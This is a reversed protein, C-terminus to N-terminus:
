YRAGTKPKPAAPASANPRLPITNEWYGHLNCHLRVRLTAPNKAVLRVAIVPKDWTPESFEIREVKKNDAYVEVWEIHHEPLMPHIEQGVQIMLDFPQGTPAKKSIKLKPWHKAELPTLHKPDKPHQFEPPTEQALVRWAPLSMTAAALGSVVSARLFERRSTGM